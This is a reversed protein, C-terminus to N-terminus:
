SVKRMKRVFWSEYGVLLGAVVVALAAGAKHEPLCWWGVGLALLVSISIFLLHFAKLSM